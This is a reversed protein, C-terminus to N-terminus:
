DAWKANDPLRDQFIPPIVGQYWLDYTSVRRGDFFEIDFKRGGFGNHPGPKNGNKGLTYHVGEIIVRKELLSPDNIKPEWYEENSHFYRKIIIRPDSNRGYVSARIHHVTHTGDAHGVDLIVGVSGYDANVASRMSGHWTGQTSHEQEIRTSEAIVVHFLREYNEELEKSHSLQM